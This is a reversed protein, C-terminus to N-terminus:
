GKRRATPDKADQVRFLKPDLRPAARLNALSIRTMQRQADVIEWHRLDYGSAAFTLTIEGEAEGTRDRATVLISDGSRAVKTIRADRELNVDRKLVYYLPTSRLPIRSVDKLRRDEIAVTAGDAVILLANPPDYDFRVKGPKQLYVSGQTVRGDPAVQVFRGQVSALRNLSASAAALTQARETGTLLVPLPPVAAAPPTKPAQAVAPTLAALGFGLAVLLSRKKM